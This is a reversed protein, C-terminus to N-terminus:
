SEGLLIYPAFSDWFTANFILIKTKGCRANKKAKDRVSTVAQSHLDSHDGAELVFRDHRFKSALHNTHRVGFKSEAPTYIPSIM